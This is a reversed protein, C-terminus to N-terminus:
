RSWSLLLILPHVCRQKQEKGLINVCAPYHIYTLSHQCLQYLIESSCISLLHYDKAALYLFGLYIGWRRVSRSATPGLWSKSGFGGLSLVLLCSSVLAACPHLPTLASALTDPSLSGYALSSFQWYGAESSSCAATAVGTAASSAEREYGRSNSFYQFAAWSFGWSKVAHVSSSCYTSCSTPLSSEQHMPSNIQRSCKSKLLPAPAM